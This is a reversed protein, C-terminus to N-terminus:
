HANNWAVCDAFKVKDGGFIDLASGFTLDVKGNSLQQVLELDAVSKAGGAYVTPL